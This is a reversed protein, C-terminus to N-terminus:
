HKDPDRIRPRDMLFDRQLQLNVTVKREFLSIAGQSTVTKLVNHRNDV